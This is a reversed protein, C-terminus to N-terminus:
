DSGVHTTRGEGVRRMGTATEAREALPQTEVDEALRHARARLARLLSDLTLQM